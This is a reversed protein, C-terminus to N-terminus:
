NAAAERVFLVNHIVTVCVRGEEVSGLQQQHSSNNASGRPSCSEALSGPKRRGREEPTPDSTSKSTLSATKSWSADHSIRHPSAKIDLEQRYNISEVMLTLSLLTGQASIPEVYAEKHEEPGTKTKRLITSYLSITWYIRHWARIFSYKYGFKKPFVTVFSKWFKARFLSHIFSHLLIFTESSM